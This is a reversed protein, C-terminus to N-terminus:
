FADGGNGDNVIIPKSKIAEKTATLSNTVDELASELLLIAKDIKVSDLNGGSLSITMLEEIKQSYKQDNDRCDSKFREMIGKDLSITYSKRERM